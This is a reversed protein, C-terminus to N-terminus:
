HDEPAIQGILNGCFQMSHGVLIERGIRSIANALSFPQKTVGRMHTAEVVFPLHVAALTAEVPAVRDRSM